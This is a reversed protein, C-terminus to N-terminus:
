SLIASPLWVRFTAGGGPTATTGVTGSHSAAVAAVISLGLGTGGGRGRQRSPDSRYFREFVKEAQEDELGAGHDRVEIV